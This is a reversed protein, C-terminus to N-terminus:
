YGECIIDKMKVMGTSPNQFVCMSRVNMLKNTTIDKMIIDMMVWVSGISPDQIM